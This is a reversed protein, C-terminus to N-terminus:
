NVLIEGGNLIEIQMEIVIELRMKEPVPQVVQIHSLLRTHFRIDAAVGARPYRSEALNSPSDHQGFLHHAVQSFFQVSISFYGPLSHHPHPHM